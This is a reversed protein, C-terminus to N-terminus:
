VRLMSDSHTTPKLYLSHLYSHIVEPWLSKYMSKSGTRNSKRSLSTVAERRPTVGASARIREARRRIQQLRHKSVAVRYSEMLSVVMV